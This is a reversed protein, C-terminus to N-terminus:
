SQLNNLAQVSLMAKPKCHGGPVLRLMCMVLLSSATRVSPEEMQKTGHRPEELLVWSTFNTHEPQLKDQPENFTCGTCGPLLLTGGNSASSCNQLSPPLFKIQLTFNRVTWSCIPPTSNKTNSRPAKLWSRQVAPSFNCISSQLLNFVEYLNPSITNDSWYYNLCVNNWPSFFTM